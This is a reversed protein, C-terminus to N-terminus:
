CGSPGCPRSKHDAVCGNYEKETYSQSWYDVYICGLSYLLLNQTPPLQQHAGTRARRICFYTSHQLSCENTVLDQPDEVQSVQDVGDSPSVRM